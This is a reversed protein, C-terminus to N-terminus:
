ICDVEKNESSVSVSTMIFSDILCHLLATNAYTHTHTHTNFCLIHSTFVKCRIMTDTYTQAPTRTEFMFSWYSHQKTVAAARQITSILSELELAARLVLHFSCEIADAAALTLQLNTHHTLPRAPRFAM